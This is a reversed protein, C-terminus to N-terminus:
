IIIKRLGILHHSSEAMGSPFNKISIIFSSITNENMSRGSKTLTFGSRSHNIGGNRHAQAFTRLSNAINTQRPVRCQAEPMSFAFNEATTRVSETRIIEQVTEEPSHESAHFLFDDAKDAYLFALCVIVYKLVWFKGEFKM